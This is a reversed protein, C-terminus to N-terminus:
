HWHITIIEEFNSPHASHNFLRRALAVILCGVQQIRGELKAAAVARDIIRASVLILDITHRICCAEFAAVYILWKLVM